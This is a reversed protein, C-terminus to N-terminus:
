DPLNDGLLRLVAANASEGTRDCEAALRANLEPPIRVTLRRGGEKTLRYTHTAQRAAATKDTPKM